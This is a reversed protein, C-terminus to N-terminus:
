RARQDFSERAKKVSNWNSGIWQVLHQMPELLSRGLSTLEYEVRPPVEAFAERSLFGDRELNRLTTTLVRQSIGDLM